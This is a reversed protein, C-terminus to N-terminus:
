KQTVKLWKKISRRKQPMLPRLSFQSSSLVSGGYGLNVLNLKDLDIVSETGTLNINLTRTTSTRTLGGEDWKM